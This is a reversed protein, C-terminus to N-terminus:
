VLRVFRNKIQRVDFFYGQWGARKATSSLAKRPVFIEVPQLDAALYYIAYKKAENVLVLFLPFYIGANMREEQPRWAAAPITNPIIDINIVNATKVQALYGCFDCIIDACKFNNPLRVLTKKKRCKPCSINKAVLLEGSSGLLQKLTAM